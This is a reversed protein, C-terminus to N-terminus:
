AISAQPLAAAPTAQTEILPAPAPTVLIEAKNAKFGEPCIVKRVSVVEGNVLGYWTTKLKSGGKRKMPAAQTYVVKLVKRKTKPAETPGKAISEKLTEVKVVPKAKIKVVPKAKAVKAKAVKAKEQHQGLRPKHAPLKEGVKVCTNANAWMLNGSPILAVIYRDRNSPKDGHPVCAQLAKTKPLSGAKIIYSITGKWTRLVGRGCTRFIISTNLPLM